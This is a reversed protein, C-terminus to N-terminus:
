VGGERKKPPTHDEVAVASRPQGKEIRAILAKVSPEMTKLFPAPYVGMIVIMAVVPVLVAIERPHLDHLTANEEHRVPGFVVRQFMWLMYVAGLILGSSAFVTAIRSTGFAGLLILFEGVFGNL